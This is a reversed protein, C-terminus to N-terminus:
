IKINCLIHLSRNFYEKARNIIFIMSNEFSTGITGFECDENSNYIQSDGFYIIHCDGNTGYSFSYGEDYSENVLNNLERVLKVYDFKM